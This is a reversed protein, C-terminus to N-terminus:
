VHARGIEGPWQVEWSYGPRDRGLEVLSDTSPDIAEDPRPRLYGSYRTAWVQEAGATAGGSNAHYVASIARGEYVLILGATADVAERIVASERELGQYVQCHVTACLDFGEGDHKGLSNVTYTRAAVAQAALAALDDMNNSYLEAGVVGYLYNELDIINVTQIKGQGLFTLRLNGRYSRLPSGPMELTVPHGNIPEVIVQLEEIPLLLAGSDDEVRFAPGNGATQKGLSGEPIEVRTIWADQYGLEQLRAKLNEAEESSAGNGVQVKYWPEEHVVYSSVGSDAEVQQRLSLAAGEDRVAKIQVRWVVSPRKLGQGAEGIVRIAGPFEDLIRGRATSIRVGDRASIRVAGSTEGLGITVKGGTDRLKLVRSPPAASVKSWPTLLLCLVLGLCPLARKIYQGLRLQSGAGRGRANSRAM